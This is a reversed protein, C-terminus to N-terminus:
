SCAGGSSTTTSSEVVVLETAALPSSPSDDPEVPETVILPLLPCFLPALVPASTLLAVLRPSPALRRLLDGGEDVLPSQYSLPGGASNSFSM